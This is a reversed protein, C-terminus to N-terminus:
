FAGILHLMKREFVLLVGEVEVESLGGSGVEHMGLRGRTEVAVACVTAAAADDIGRVGEVGVVGGAGGGSGAREIGVVSVDCVGAVDIGGADGAVSM